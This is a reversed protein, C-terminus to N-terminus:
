TSLSAFSLLTTLSRDYRGSAAMGLHWRRIVDLMWRWKCHRESASACICCSSVHYSLFAGLAIGMVVMVALASCELTRRTFLYQFVIFWNAKVTQGTARDFFTLDMLKKDIVEGYFLAICIGSGYFMMLTHVTLFLLFWRYNEEGITNFVWGCFHDYRPVNQDYKLRDFKSRAIRILNTSECRRDPLFLLHDFPYHDYRKFSKPTIVGPSTKNCLRWSGYCALFVVYGVYKHGNSVHSSISVWPYIYWFVITWTGLSVGLYVLVLARDLVEQLVDMKKEGFVKGLQGWIKNPLAVQILYAM